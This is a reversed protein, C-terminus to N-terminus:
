VLITLLLILLRVCFGWTEREIPHVKLNLNPRDSLNESLDVCIEPFKPGSVM